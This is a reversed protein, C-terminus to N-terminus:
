HSLYTDLDGKFLLALIGLSAYICGLFDSCWLIKEFWIIEDQAGLLGIFIYSSTLAWTATFFFIGWLFPGGPSIFRPMDVVELRLDKVFRLLVFLLSAAGISHLLAFQVPPLSM